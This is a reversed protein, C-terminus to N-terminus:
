LIDINYNQKKGGKHIGRFMLYVYAVNSTMAIGSCVENLHWAVIGALLRVWSLSSIVITVSVKTVINPTRFIICIFSIFMCYSGGKVSAVVDRWIIIVPAISSAALCISEANVGVHHARFTTEQYQM